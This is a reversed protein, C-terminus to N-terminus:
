AAIFYWVKLYSGDERQFYYIYTLDIGILELWSHWIYTDFWNSAEAKMEIWFEPTKFLVAFLVSNILELFNVVM